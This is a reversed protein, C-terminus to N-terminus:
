TRGVWSETDGLSESRDLIVHTGILSAARIQAARIERGAAASGVVAFSEVSSVFM